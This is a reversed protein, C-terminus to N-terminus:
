NKYNVTEKKKFVNFGVSLGLMGGKRTSSYFVNVPINLAGSKFTRGIGMVWRASISTTGRRDLNISYKYKPDAVPQPNNPDILENAYSRYDEKRWYYGAGKGYTNDTDYFGESTNQLGFSPGFAFEFGSKGFRFGNMLSVSPIFLGQELGSVNVFSEILASFNETGIYQKEVQYGIMSFAPVVDLGGEDQSRTAFEALSGGVIAYGVRPGSNNIRGVNSAVIVDNKFSLQSEVEPQVDFGLMERLTLEIMRQLEEEQDGFEKFSSKYIAGRKIDIIKLSIIIKNGIRDIGGSIVYDVKLAKGFTSLCNLGFCDKSFAPNSNMVETVDFEDYVNFKKLKILELNIMKAATKQPIELNQVSPLAVAITPNNNEQAHIGFFSGTILLLTYIKTKM